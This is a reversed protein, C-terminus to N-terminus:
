GVTLNNSRRDDEVAQDFERVHNHLETKRVRLLKDVRGQKKRRVQESNAECPSYEIRSSTSPYHIEPKVSLVHRTGRKSGDARSHLVNIM